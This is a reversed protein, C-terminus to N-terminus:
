YRKKFNRNNSNRNYDKAIKKILEINKSKTWAYPSSNQDRGNNGLNSSTASYIIKIKNDVHAYIWYFTEKDSKNNIKEIRIEHIKQKTVDKM